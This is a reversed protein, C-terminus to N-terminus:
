ENVLERAKMLKKAVNAWTKVKDILEQPNDKIVFSVAGSFVSKVPDMIRKPDAIYLVFLNPFKKILDEGTKFGGTGNFNTDILAIDIASQGCAAKIQEHTSATYIKNLGIELLINKVFVLYEPEQNCVLIRIDNIRAM